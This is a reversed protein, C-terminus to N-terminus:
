KTASNTASREYPKATITLGALKEKEQRTDAALM